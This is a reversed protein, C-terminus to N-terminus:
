MEPSNAQNESITVKRSRNRTAAANRDRNKQILEKIKNKKIKTQVLEPAQHHENEELDLTLTSRISHAHIRSVCIAFLFMFSVFVFTYSTKMISNPNGM